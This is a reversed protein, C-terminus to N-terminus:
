PSFLRKDRRHHYNPNRGRQYNREPKTPVRHMARFMKARVDNQKHGIEMRDDDDLDDFGKNPQRAKIGLQKQKRYHNLFGRSAGSLAETIKDYYNM